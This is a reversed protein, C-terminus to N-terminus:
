DQRQGSLRLKEVVPLESRRVFELRACARRNIVACRKKSFREDCFDYPDISSSRPFSRLGRGFLGLAVGLIGLLTTPLLPVTQHHYDTQRQNRNREDDRVVEPEFRPRLFTALFMPLTLM